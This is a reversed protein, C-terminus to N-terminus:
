LSAGPPLGLISIANGALIASVTGAQGDFFGGTSTLTGSSVGTLATFAGSCWSRSGMRPFAIATGVSAQSQASAHIM